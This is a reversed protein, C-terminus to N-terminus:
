HGPRSRFKIFAHGMLAVVLATPRELAKLVTPDWPKQRAGSLAEPGRVAGAKRAATPIGAPDIEPEGRLAAGFRVGTRRRHTRVM